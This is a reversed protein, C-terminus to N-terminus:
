FSLFSLGRRKNKKLINQSNKFGQIEIYIESSTPRNKCLFWNSNQHLKCLGISWIPSAMKWSTKYGVGKSFKSTAKLLEITSEKFNRHRYLIMGDAFLSNQIQLLWEEFNFSLNINGSLCFSLSNLANLCSFYIFAM